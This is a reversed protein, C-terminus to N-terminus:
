SEVIWEEQFQANIDVVDGGEALRAVSEREIRVVDLGIQERRGGGALPRPRVTDGNVQPGIAPMDLVLIHLAQARADIRLEVELHAIRRLNEVDGQADQGLFDAQHRLVARLDGSLATEVSDALELHERGCHGPQLLRANAHAQEDLWLGGLEGGGTLEAGLHDLQVGASKGIGGAFSTVAFHLAQNRSSLVSVSEANLDIGPVANVVRVDRLDPFHRM